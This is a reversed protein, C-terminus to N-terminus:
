ENGPIDDQQGVGHGKALHENHSFFAGAPKLRRSYLRIKAATRINSIVGIMLPIQLKDSVTKAFEILSIACPERRYLPAVFNFLEELCDQGSYWAKGVYLAVCGKMEDGEGIVGIIARDANFARHLVSRVRREDLEFMGNEAHLLRCLRMIAAEDSPVAVRVPLLGKM